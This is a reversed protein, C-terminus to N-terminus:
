GVTYIDFAPSHLEYLTPARFGTSASARFMVQKHPQFRLGIKPNFTSGADSYKDERAALTLELTKHLPAVLETYLASLNRSADKDKVGFLGTARYISAQDVTAHNVTYSSNETRHEAGIALALPGGPLAMLERTARLDIGANHAKTNLANGILL